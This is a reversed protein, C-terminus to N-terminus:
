LYTVSDLDELATGHVTIHYNNSATQRSCGSRIRNITLGAKSLQGSSHKDKGADTVPTPFILWIM